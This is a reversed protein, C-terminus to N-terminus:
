DEELIFTAKERSEGFFVIQDLGIVLAGFGKFGVFSQNNSLKVAGWENHNPALGSSTLALKGVGWENSERGGLNYLESKLICTSSRTVEFPFSPLARWINQKM